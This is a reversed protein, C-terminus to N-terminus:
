GSDSHAWATRHVRGGAGAPRPRAVGGAGAEIEGREAEREARTAPDLGQELKAILDKLNDVQRALDGARAREAALAKEREAQQKQREDVLASVRAREQGLSAVERNLAEREAAIEKRVAVLGSLDAALAAVQERMQPLVAGLLMATRVAQM